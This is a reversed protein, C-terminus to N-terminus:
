REVEFTLYETTGEVGGMPMGALQNNAIATRLVEVSLKVAGLEVVRQWEQPRKEQMERIAHSDWKMGASRSKLVCPPAGELDLETLGEEAMYDKIAKTLAEEERKADAIMRRLDYLGKVQEALRAAEATQKIVM